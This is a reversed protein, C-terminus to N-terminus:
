KNQAGPSSAQKWSGQPTPLTFTFTSGVNEESEMTITGGHLEVLRKTLSLGLGTGEHPRNSSNNVQYFETFLKEKKSKPIGIGTDIVQFTIYPDEFAQFLKLTVTGGIRNFKLANSILNYFIQRIRSPDALIVELDPQIDFCLQVQKQEAISCFVEQISFIFSELDIWEPQIDMKGAEIKSLDLIENVMDLLHRGSLTINQIYREQKETLTGGMGLALMESYGIVANLPTRLEHSMNSLFQSKLRSAREVEEKAKFKYLTIAMHDTITNLFSVESSELRRPESLHFVVAGLVEERYRIPVIGGGRIKYRTYFERWRQNHWFPTKEVDEIFISVSDECAKLYPCCENFPIQNIFPEMEEHSLYEATIPSAADNDFRAAYCRDLNLTTGIERVLNSFTENLTFPHRISYLVEHTKREWNYQVWYQERTQEAEEKTKKLEEEMQKRDTIDVSSCIFGAFEGAVNYRPTGTDLLWRYEGDYRRMRYELTLSKRAKLAQFYHQYCIEYDDPHIGAAWGHGMEEQLTRGTFELWSKNFYICSGTADALAIMVPIMDALSILQQEFRNELLPIPM